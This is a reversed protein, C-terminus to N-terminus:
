APDETFSGCASAGTACTTGCGDGTSCMLHGYSHEAIVVKVDLPAFDDDDLGALPAPAVPPPALTASTM